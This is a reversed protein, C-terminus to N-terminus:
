VTSIENLIQDVHQIVKYGKLANVMDKPLHTASGEDRLLIQSEPFYLAVHGFGMIEFLSNWLRADGCPRHITLSTIQSANLTNGVYIDCNNRSDYYVKWQTPSVKTAYEGFSQFVEELPLGFRQGNEFSQVYIEFSM